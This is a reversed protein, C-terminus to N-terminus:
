PVFVKPSGSVTKDVVPGYTGSLTIQGPCIGSTKTLTQSGFIIGNVSNNWHGTFGTSTYTCSLGAGSATWNVAGTTATNGDVDSIALSYPLNNATFTVGVSSITCGSFSMKTISLAASGPATPNSSVTAQTTGSTCEPPAFSSSLVDGKAVARGSVSGTRMVASSTPLKTTQTATFAAGNVSANPSNASDQCSVKATGAAAASAGTLSIAQNNSASVTTSVSDVPKGGGDKLSCTVNDSSGTANAFNVSTNYIFSGGPLALSAVTTAAGLGNAFNGGTFYGSTSPGAPGQPGTKNWSIAKQGTGCKKHTATLVTLAGTKVNYCGNITTDTAGAAATAAIAGVGVGIITAVGAGIALLRRPQASVAASIARIGM